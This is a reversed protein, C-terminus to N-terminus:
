LTHHLHAAFPLSGLRLDPNDAQTPLRNPATNALIARSWFLGFCGQPSFGASFHFYTNVFRIYV